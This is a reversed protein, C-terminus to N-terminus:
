LGIDGPEGPERAVLMPREPSRTLAAVGHEPDIGLGLRHSPVRHQARRFAGVEFGHGPDVARAEDDTRLGLLLSTGLVDDEVPTEIARLEAERRDSRDVVRSPPQGRSIVMADFPNTVYIADHDERRLDDFLLALM